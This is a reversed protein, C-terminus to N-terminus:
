GLNGGFRFMSRAKQETDGKMFSIAEKRGQRGISRRLDLDIFLREELWPMHYRRAFWVVYSLRTNEARSIQTTSEVNEKGYLYRWFQTDGKERNLSRIRATLDKEDEM